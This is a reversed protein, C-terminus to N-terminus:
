EFDKRCPDNSACLKVPLKYEVVRKMIAMGSAEAAKSQALRYYWVAGNVKKIRAFEESLAALSVPKSNLYIDGGEEVKVKAIGNAEWAAFKKAVEAERAANSCSLQCLVLVALFVFPYKVLAIRERNRSINTDSSGTRRM